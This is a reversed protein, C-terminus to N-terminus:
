RALSEGIREQVTVQRPRSRDDLYGTKKLFRLAKDRLKRELYRVQDQSMEFAQATIRRAPREIMHSRFFARDREDLDAMFRALISEVERDALQSDMTEEKADADVKIEDFAADRVRKARFHHLLANRAIGLLFGRLSSPGAYGRRTTEQFATIFVEQTLDRADSSSRVRAYLYQYVDEAHTRYVEVLAERKGIRFARDLDLSSHADGVATKTATLSVL